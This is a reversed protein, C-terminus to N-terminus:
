RNGSRLTPSIQSAGYLSHVDYHTYSSDAGQVAIMCLTKDSLRAKTRRESLTQDDYHYVAESVPLLVLLLLLLSHHLLVVFGTGTSRM